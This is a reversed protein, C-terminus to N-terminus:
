VFGDESQLIPLRYFSPDDLSTLLPPSPRVQANLRDAFTLM